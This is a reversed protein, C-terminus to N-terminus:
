SLRKKIYCPLSNDHRYITTKMNKIFYEGAVIDFKGIAVSAQQDLPIKWKDCTYLESQMVISQTM